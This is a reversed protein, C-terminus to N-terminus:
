SEVEDMQRRSAPVPRPAAVLDALLAQLLPKLLETRINPPLVPRTESVPRDFLNRQLERRKKM